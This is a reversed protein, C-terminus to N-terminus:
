LKVLWKSLWCSWLYKAIHVKFIHVHSKGQACPLAIIGVRTKSRSLISYKQSFDFASSQLPHIPGVHVASAASIFTLFILLQGSVSLVYTGICM